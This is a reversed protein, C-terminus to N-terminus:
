WIMRVGATLAHTTDQGSFDGEYRLYLSVAEGVATNAAVGVVAGDRQPSAGYTTFPASPAGVFSAAVPRAVDAYEHSWGLRLQAFLKDRWGLDVGGGLQAGLVTRLSNTTQAAVSLDLSQAGSRPSPTRRAPTPRCAPSRRSSPTSRGASISATAARPRVMSRTPAPRAPRWARRWARSRISRSLNNASYAYGAIGDLYVPGQAYGGYLGAQVTNSFGQGTFGSVWQSGSTYGVTVGARFNDTVKRDLGGAFGGVNYTVGAAQGTGVTGLGGLAGGWAGWRGPETTDCAVDCAEALAIKGQGRNASSAQGLFNNMFLQAGQVMSNSFGSYNQGSLSTLIAPVQSPNLNALTGLVTAYDGTAQLVSGDLAGGVAAQTPTQAAALFGNITLNLYANNADYVLSPQLFPSGGSATVSSFAGSVGGSSSVIAYTTRPAYLVGSQLLANVSGGLITASGNVAINSSQRAANAEVIYTSGPNFTLNNNVSLAGMANNGPWITGFVSTAPLTGTGRVLAMPGVSLGSSSAISGNVVM